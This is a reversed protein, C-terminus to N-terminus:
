HLFEKSLALDGDRIHSSATPAVIVVRQSGGRLFLGCMLAVVNHMDLCVHTAHTGPMGAELGVEDLDSGWSFERTDPSAGTRGESHSPCGDIVPTGGM